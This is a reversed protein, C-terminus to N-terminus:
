LGRRVPLAPHLRRRADGQTRFRGDRVHRFIGRGQDDYDLEGGYLWAYFARRQNPARLRHPRKNKLGYAIYYRIGMVEPEFDGDIDFVDYLSSKNIFTDVQYLLATESPLLQRLEMIHGTSVHTCGHSMPGRSVLWLYHYSKGSRSKRGPHRLAAPLFSAQEPRMRWWPTHFSNHLRKGVHMYPIWPSYSYALNTPIHDVTKTRQHTTLARRGPTPYHPIRRGRHTTYGNYSGIPYIATFETFQLHDDRRPYMGQAVRDFLWFFAPRLPELATPAGAATLAPVSRVLTQLQAAVKRDIEAVFLRTPLMLNLLELRRKTGMSKRDEPRVHAAWRRVVENAPMRIRFIRGPNLRELLALNRERIEVNALTAEEAVLREFQMDQIVNEFAEFATNQTLVLRDRDILARYTQYRALVDRAYTQLVVDSLVVTVRLQNGRGIHVHMRKPDLMRPAFGTYFTPEYREYYVGYPSPKQATQEAPSRNPKNASANVLMVTCALLGCIGLVRLCLDTVPKFATLWAMDSREVSSCNATHQVLFRLYLLGYRHMTTM